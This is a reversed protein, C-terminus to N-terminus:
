EVRYRELERTTLLRTQKNIERMKLKKLGSINVYPSFHRNMTEGDDNGVIVELQGRGNKCNCIRAVILAVCRDVNSNIMQSQLSSPMARFTMCKNLTQKFREASTQMIVPVFHKSLPVDLSYMIFEHLFDRGLPVEYYSERLRRFQHYMFMQEEETFPIELFVPITPFASAELGQRVNIEMSRSVPVIATSEDETEEDDSSEFSYPLETAAAQKEMPSQMEEEEDDHKQAAYVGIAPPSISCSSGFGSDCSFGRHMIMPRDGRDSACAAVAAESPTGLSDLYQGLSSLV